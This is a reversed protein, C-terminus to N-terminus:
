ADFVPAAATERLRWWAITQELGARLDFEPRWNLENSLRETDALLVRPEGPAAPIANLQILEPRDLQRAIETIVDELRVAHGSGINVAGRVESDLLAVFAEAVDGVYLFDRVQQGHSCRATENRLLARIVSPVLRQEYESPGYLFFVRGWAASLGAQAAYADLMIRLAHKCAGYLTAPKLPTQTEACPEDDGWEYEACSGAVVIRQGGALAFAEFLDLSAQVWRLNETSTWYKGPEAYWALHLLHTPEVKSVLGFIQERNLLDAQHWSVGSLDDRRESSHVVAHVEFDRKLLPLICKSGIFGSAGTLLVRKM